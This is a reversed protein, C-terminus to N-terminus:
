PAKNNKTKVRSSINVTKRATEKAKEKAQVELGSKSETQTPSSGASQISKLSFSEVFETM